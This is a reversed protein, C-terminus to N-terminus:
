RSAIAFVPPAAYKARASFPRSMSSWADLNGDVIGTIEIRECRDSRVRPAVLTLWVRGNRGVFSAVFTAAREAIARVDLPTGREGPEWRILRSPPWTDSSRVILHPADDTTVRLDTLVDDLDVGQWAWESALWDALELVTMKKQNM